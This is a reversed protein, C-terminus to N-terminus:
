LKYRKDPIAPGTGVWRPAGEKEVFTVCDGLTDIKFVYRISEVTEPKANTLKLGVITPFDTILVGLPADDLSAVHISVESKTEVYPILRHLMRTLQDIVRKEEYWTPIKFLHTHDKNGMYLEGEQDIGKSKVSLTMSVRNPLIEIKKLYFGLEDAISDIAADLEKRRLRPAQTPSVWGRKEIIWRITKPSKGEARAYTRYAVLADQLTM